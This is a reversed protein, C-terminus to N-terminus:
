QMSFANSPQAASAQPRASHLQGINLAHQAPSMQASTTKASHTALTTTQEQKLQASATHHPTNVLAQPANANTQVSAASPNPRTVVVLLMVGVVLLAILIALTVQIPSISQRRSM